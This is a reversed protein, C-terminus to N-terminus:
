QDRATPSTFQGRSPPYFGYKILSQPRCIWAVAGDRIGVVM